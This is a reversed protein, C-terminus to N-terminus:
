GGGCTKCARERGAAQADAVSGSFIQKARKLSACDRTTHWVEGSGSWYVIDDTPAEPLVTEAPTTQETPADTEEQAARMSEEADAIMARIQEASVTETVDVGVGAQVCSSLALLLCLLAAYIRRTRM